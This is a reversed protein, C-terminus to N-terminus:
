GTSAAVVSIPFRQGPTMRSFVDLTGKERAFRTVGEIVKRDFRKNLSMVLAVHRLPATVRGIEERGTIHENM